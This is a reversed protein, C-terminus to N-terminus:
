LIGKPFYFNMVEIELRSAVVSPDSAAIIRIQELLGIQYLSFGRLSVDRQEDYPGAVRITGARMQAELHALHLGQLRELEEDSFNPVNAPWKLLVFEFRDFDAEAEASTDM